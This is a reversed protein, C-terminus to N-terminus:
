TREAQLQTFADFYREGLSYLAERSFHIADSRWDLAQANSQLGQTTVFAGNECNACVDRIARLVPECIGFNDNKWHEVFDGAIFPLRLCDFTDKVANVLTSLNAYHKEYSAGLIADTEGQHWLLAALRNGPNLALATKSMKIMRLFLDDQLGWRNDLFGTAGVSTRLILLDRGNKLLGSDLYLDAFSLSFDGQVANGNVRERAPAIVFDGTLYWVSDKPEYPKIVDGFGTGDSNSQGAQILIDFEKERFDKLM